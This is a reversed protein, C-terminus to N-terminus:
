IEIIKNQLEFDIVYNELAVAPQMFSVKFPVKQTKIGFLSGTAGLKLELGVVLLAAIDVESVAEGYSLDIVTKIPAEIGPTIFVAKLLQGTTLATFPAITQKKDRIYSTTLDFDKLLVDYKIKYYVAGEEHKFSSIDIIDKFAQMYDVTVDVFEAPLVVGLDQPKDGLLYQRQVEFIVVDFDTLITDIKDQDLPEYLVIKGIVKKTM